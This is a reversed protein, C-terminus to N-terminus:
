GSDASSAHHKVESSTNGVPSAWSAAWRQSVVANQWFSGQGTSYIEKKYAIGQSLYAITSDVCRRHGQLARLIFDQSEEVECEFCCCFIVEVKKVETPEPEHVIILLFQLLQIVLSCALRFSTEKIGRALLPEFLLASWRTAQVPSFGHWFFGQQCRPFSPLFIVQSFSHFAPLVKCRWTSYSIRQGGGHQIPYGKGVEHLICARPQHRSNQVVNLQHLHLM